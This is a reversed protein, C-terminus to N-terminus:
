EGTEVNERKDEGDKVAPFGKEVFYLKKTLMSTIMPVQLKRSRGQGSQLSYKYVVQYSVDTLLSLLDTQQIDGSLVECLAQIFWCGEEPNRYSKYEYYSSYMVLMDAYKSISIKEEEEIPPESDDEPNQSPVVEELKGRCSQIFFLKPKGKLATCNNGIFPQWLRDMAFTGNKITIKDSGAGHAMVVLVFCDSDHHNKLSEQKLLDMLENEDLNRGVTVEFQVNKLVTTVDNTDKVSGPRKEEYNIVM